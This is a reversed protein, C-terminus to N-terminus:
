DDACVKEDISGGRKNFKHWKHQTHFGHRKNLCVLSDMQGPDFQAM